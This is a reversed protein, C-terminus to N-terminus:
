EHPELPDAARVRSLRRGSGVARDAAAPRPSSHDGPLPRVPAAVLPMAERHAIRAFATAANSKPTPTFISNISVPLRDSFLHGPDGLPVSLAPRSAM